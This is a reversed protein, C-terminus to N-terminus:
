AVWPGARPGVLAALLLATALVWFITLVHVADMRYRGFLDFVARYAYFLGPPKSDTFARYPPAGEQMAAAGAAYLAEDENLIPVRLAPLRLVAGVLLVAPLIWRSRM